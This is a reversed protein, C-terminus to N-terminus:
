GADAGSMARDFHRALEDREFEPLSAGDAARVQPAGSTAPASAEGIVAAALGADRLAAVAGSSADPEVAALLSGSGILGWADLELADCVARAQPLVPVAETMVGIDVDAATALERLATALGGETVDHMAHVGGAAMLVQADRLVSIGPVDLLRTADAITADDIGADRLDESADIALIATGEIAIGKTLIVHDGPRAGSTSITAGAAAEGLMFGCVVPQTVAPTIETHGGALTVGIEGAAARLQGFIDAVAAETSGVPMLLSALFWKPTGGAVAIDNANVSIAYRGIDTTAFTIPDSKAILTTAGFDIHAADEGVGPGVLLRPDVRDAALDALLTALVANPLKGSKLQSM